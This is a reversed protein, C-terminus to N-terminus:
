APPARVTQAALGVGLLLLVAVGLHGVLLHAPATVPCHLLLLLNAVLGGYAAALLARRTARTGGRDFLRLLGYSVLGFALGFGLCPLAREILAPWGPPQLSAPHALHAPPLAYLVVLGVLASAIAAQSAWAPLPPRSLPRLVLLLQLALLAIIVLMGLGLRFVPYVALDPRAWALAMPAALLALSALSLAIRVATSRSRLWARVGREEALRQEVLAFLEDLDPPAGPLPGGSVRERLAVEARQDGEHASLPDSDRSAM